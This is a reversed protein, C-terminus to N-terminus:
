GVSGCLSRGRRSDRHILVRQGAKLKAQDFPRGASNYPDVSSVGCLYSAVVDVIRQTRHQVRRAAVLHEGTRRKAWAERRHDNIRSTFLVNLIDTHKSDRRKPRLYAASIPANVTGISTLERAKLQECLAFDFSRRIRRFSSPLMSDWAACGSCDQTASEKLPVAKHAVDLQKLALHQAV